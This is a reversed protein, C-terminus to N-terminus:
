TVSVHDPTYESSPRLLPEQHTNLDNQLRKYQGEYFVILVCSLLIVGALFLVPSRLLRPLPPTTEGAIFLSSPSFPAPGWNDEELLAQTIFVFFVALVNAGTACDTPLRCM